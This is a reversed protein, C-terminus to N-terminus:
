EEDIRPDKIPHLHAHSSSFILAEDTAWADQFYANLLLILKHIDSLNNRSM